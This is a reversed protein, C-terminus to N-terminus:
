GEKRALDILDLLATAQKVVLASEYTGDTSEILGALDRAEESVTVAFRRLEDGETALADIRRAKQAAEGLLEAIREVLRLLEQAENRVVGTGNATTTPM